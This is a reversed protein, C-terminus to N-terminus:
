SAATELIPTPVPDLEQQLAPGLDLELWRSFEALAPTRAAVERVYGLTRPIDDLYGPKGDRRYLRAFIGIAKLHRQMGMRDFWAMFQGADDDALLGNTLLRRRYGEAWAEVRARPWAIYCDRLLSVLDYTLPGVVADQFDLIGPNDTATVMLNRSHFDRHVCVRPQELASDALLAFAADIVAGDADSIVLGLHQELYWERFLGMERLLMPRDYEPFAYDPIPARQLTMLADLADGYLRDANNATLARLYTDNGLDGLLLFGRALNADLVRPVNLGLDGFLGALTVFPRCDEQPPPADMAILTPSVGTLRFYRRFSADASAPQLQPDTIGLGDRLWRQLEALRESM